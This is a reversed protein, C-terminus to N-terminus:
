CRRPTTRRATAPAASGARRSRQRSRRGAGAGRRGARHRSLRAALRGRGRTRRHASRTSQGAAQFAGFIGLARGLAEEADVRRAGGAAAADHVLQSCGQLVRAGLFLPSRRPSSAPWRRCCRVGRVRDAGDAVAGVPCGAHGVGADAVRVAAPVGDALVRGRSADSASTTVSRPFSRRSSGAASRVSFVVPTSRSRAAPALFSAVEAVSNKSVARLQRAWASAPVARIRGRHADGDIKSIAETIDTEADGREELSRVYEGIEEDDATMENVAEEWDEAQAPLEGLPVEIDLVDEVRQLLAVTAKPNPPQSVYHPVAAWFSVAPVGARVCQTRSCEPSAPRARTAPRNSTSGSPPRAATRAHRDGPGAPHAPHRRAARRPHGRDQRQLQDILELLDECFSRWRMNPEIGRLLVCTATAAPLRASRCCPDRAM